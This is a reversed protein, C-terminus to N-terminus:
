TVTVHGGSEVTEESYLLDRIRYAASSRLQQRMWGGSLPPRWSDAVEQKCALPTHGSPIGYPPSRM